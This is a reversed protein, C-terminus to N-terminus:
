EAEEAPKELEERLLKEFGQRAVDLQDLRAHAANAQQSLDQIQGVCYKARDSLDDIVYNKGDFILTPKEEVETM